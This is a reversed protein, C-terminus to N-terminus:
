ATESMQKSAAGTQSANTRPLLVFSSCVASGHRFYPYTGKLIFSSDSRFHLSFTTESFFHRKKTITIHSEVWPAVHHPFDISLKLISHKM